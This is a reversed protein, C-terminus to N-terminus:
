ADFKGSERHIARILHLEFMMEDDPFEQKVEKILKDLIKQKINHKRALEQANFHLSTKEM